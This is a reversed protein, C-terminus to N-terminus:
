STSFTTEKLIGRDSRDDGEEYYKRRGAEVTTIIDGKPSLDFMNIYNKNSASKSPYSRKDRSSDGDLMSRPLIQKLVPRLTPISAAM